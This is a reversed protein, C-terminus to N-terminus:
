EGEILSSCFYALDGTILGGVRTLIGAFSGHIVYVGTLVYGHECRGQVILEVQPMDTRRQYVKPQRNYYDDHDDLRNAFTRSVEGGDGVYAITVGRGERGFVAKEVYSVSHTLFREPTSYTPLFYRSIVSQEFDNFVNLAENHEYLTWILKYFSKSQMLISHAPNIIGLKGQEILQLIHHGVPTGDSDRDEILLELPYLRYWIDIREEGLFLGVGERVTLESLDAFVSTIGATEACYQLFRTNTYDELHDQHCSFAITGTLGAARYYDVAQRFAEAAHVPLAADIAQESYVATTGLLQPIFFTEPIGTPTDANNEIVKLQGEYVIWDQRAIAHFPLEMRAAPILRDDVHLERAIVEDPMYRQVYRLATMYIRHVAESAAALQEVEDKSYVLANTTVYEQGNMDLYPVLKVAEETLV